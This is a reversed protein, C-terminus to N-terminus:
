TSAVTRETSVSVQWFGSISAGAGQWTTVARSVEPGSSPSSIVKWTWDV